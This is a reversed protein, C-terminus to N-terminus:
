KATKEEMPLKSHKRGRVANEEDDAEALLAELDLTEEMSDEAINEYAEDEDKDEDENLWPLIDEYLSPEALLEAAEFVWDGELDESALETRIAPLARPDKRQALGIM